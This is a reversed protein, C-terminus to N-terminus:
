SSAPARHGCGVQHNIGVLLDVLHLGGIDRLWNGYSCGTFCVSANQFTKGIEVAFLRDTARIEATKANELSCIM